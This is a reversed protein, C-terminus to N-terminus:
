TRPRRCASGPERRPPSPSAGAEAQDGLSIVNLARRLTIRRDQDGLSLQVKRVPTDFRVKLPAGAAVTPWRDAVSAAPTRLALTITQERGLAWATWGPRRVRVQVTVRQRTDLAHRPYLEGDRRVLAIAHGDADHASISTVRAALRPSDLRVLGRAGVSLSAHSGVIAAAAAGVVVLLAGLGAIAALVAGRPRRPGVPTTTRVSVDRLKGIEDCGESVQLIAVV